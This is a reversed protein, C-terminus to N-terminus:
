CLKKQTGGTFGGVSAHSLLMGWPVAVEWPSHQQTHTHPASPHQKGMACRLPLFFLSRSEPEARESSWMWRGTPLRM